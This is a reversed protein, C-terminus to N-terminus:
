KKYNSIKEELLIWRETKTEIDEMLVGIQESLAHLTIHDAKSSNIQEVLLKKENELNSIAQELQKHEQLEKWTPKDPSREKKEDSIDQRANRKMKKNERKIAEKKEQYATYSGYFDKIVGNGEFIYIHNAIKDLFYRDHTAVMLCGSFNLLFAELAQLTYIDLDNTPEDLILFNPKQMLTMILHLKRKEGGSLNHLYNYQTNFDFGFMQLFRSASITKKEDIYVEEAIEKVIDIVRRNDNINMGTQTFYAIKITTGKVIKGKNPPILGAVMDLLTSKGVGNKGILGIKDNKKFTYSFDNVIEVTDFKKHLNNIEMIKKGTREHKVFFKNEQKTERGSTEDHLKEVIEMRSKSKTRRAKPMRRYWELEKKFHARKKEFEVADITEREAKKELYYHFGGKYHFLQHNDLEFITDCVNDLFYRDHTVLLLTLQLRDLFDELWEITDIDLHNTPEDLILLDAEEILVKALAVKKKQGGSLLKCPKLLSGIGLKGIVEKVQAEYQWANLNDIRTTLHQLEQRNESTLADEPLSIIAEYAKIVAAKENNADFVAELVTLDDDIAPNQTLYAIKVDNNVVVNGSDPMELGTIINLLSTKGTGNTAILASKQGKQLGFTINEFLTKEGYSKTLNEVALYNM